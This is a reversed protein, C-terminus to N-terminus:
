RQQEVRCISGPSPSLSPKSRTKTLRGWQHDALCRGRKCRLLLGAIKGLSAETPLSLWLCASVLMAFTLCESNGGDM